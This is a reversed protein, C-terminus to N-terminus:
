AAKTDKHNPDIELAKLFTTEADLLSEISEKEVGIKEHAM